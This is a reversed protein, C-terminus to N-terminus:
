IAIELLRCTKETLFVFVEARHFEFGLSDNGPGPIICDLTWFLRFDLTWLKCKRSEVKSKESEVHIYDRM